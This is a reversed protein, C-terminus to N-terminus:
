DPMGSIRAMEAMIDLRGDALDKGEGRSRVGCDHGRRKVRWPESAGKRPRRAGRSGGNVGDLGHPPLGCAVAAGQGLDKHSVSSYTSCMSHFSRMSQLSLRSRQLFNSDTNKSCRVLERHVGDGDIGILIPQRGMALFCTSRKSCGCWELM